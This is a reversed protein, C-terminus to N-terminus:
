RGSSSFHWIDGPGYHRLVHGNIEVGKVIAALTWPDSVDVAGKPWDIGEHNSTGPYAAPRIRAVFYIYWQKAYSRYGSTIGGHWGHKRGYELFPIIWNSVQKGDFYGLGKKPQMKLRYRLSKRRARRDQRYEQELERQRRYVKLASAAAKKDGKKLAKRRRRKARLKRRTAQLQLSLLRRLRKDKPKPM